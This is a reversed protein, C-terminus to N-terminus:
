LVGKEDDGAHTKEVGSTDIDTDASSPADPYLENLDASGSLEEVLRKHKDRDKALRTNETDKFQEQDRRFEAERKMRYFDKEWKGADNAMNMVKYIVVGVISLGIGLVTLAAVVLYPFIETM